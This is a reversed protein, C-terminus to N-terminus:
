HGIKNIDAQNGIQKSYYYKRSIRAKTMNGLLTNSKRKIAKSGTSNPIIPAQAIEQKEDIIGEKKM